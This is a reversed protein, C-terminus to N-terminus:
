GLLILTSVGQVAWTSKTLRRGVLVSLGIFNASCLAVLAAGTLFATDDTLFATGLLALVAFILAALEVLILRFLIHPKSFVLTTRPQRSAESRFESSQMM